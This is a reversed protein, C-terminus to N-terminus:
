KLLIERAFQSALKNDIKDALGGTKIHAMVKGLDKISTLHETTIILGVYDRLGQESMMPPLYQELIPLEFQNGCEIANEKFKRVIALVDEDSPENGKKLKIEALLIKLLHRKEPEPGGYPTKALDEQIKEKLQGM